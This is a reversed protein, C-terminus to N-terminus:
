LTSELAKFQTAFNQDSLMKARSYGAAYLTKAQESRNLKEYCQGCLLYTLLYNPDLQLCKEFIAIAESYEGALYHVRALAAHALVSDPDLSVLKQHVTKIDM